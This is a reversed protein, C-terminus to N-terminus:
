RDLVAAIPKADRPVVPVPRGDATEFPTRTPVGLASCLTAFLDGPGVAETAPEEGHADTTGFATGAAIGAGALLVSQARPWHDRGGAPNLRPTRGFESAVCVTVRAALDDDARLDDLLAALGTDLATLKPPFGYTLARAIGTHHDWGRDRVLVVGVGARALRKALLLSQGLTNRGYRQRDAPSEAGLDFPERAAPDAALRAARRQLADRAREDSSRPGADLTDLLGTLEATTAADSPPTLDRVRFDPRAPDGGVEFPGHEAALYGAGGYQPSSPISVFDPLVRDVGGRRSAAVAGISPYELVASPRHGTLLVHSGRDHNGDGHTLSRILATRDLRRALEPLHGSVFTGDIAGRIVPLDGRVSPPAEPKADFTDLHSMGGDLWVLILSRRERTTPLTSALGPMGLLLAGAAGGRLLARRSPAVDLPPTTPESRTM